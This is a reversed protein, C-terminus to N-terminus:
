FLEVAVIGAAYFAHSVLRTRAAERGPFDAVSFSLGAVFAPRFSPGCARANNRPNKM